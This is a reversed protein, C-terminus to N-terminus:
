NSLRNPIRYCVSQFSNPISSQAVLRVALESVASISAGDEVRTTQWRVACPAVKQNGVLLLSVDALHGNIEGDVERIHDHHETRYHDVVRVIRLPMGQRAFTVVHAVPENAWLSGYVNTYAPSHQWDNPHALYDDVSMPSGSGFGPPEASPLENGWQMVFADESLCLPTHFLPQYQPEDSVDTTRPTTYWIWGGIGSVILLAAPVAIRRMTASRMAVLAAGALIVLAIAGAAINAPSQLHHLYEGM